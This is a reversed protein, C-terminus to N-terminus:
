LVAPAGGARTVRKASARPQSFSRLREPRVKRRRGSASLAPRSAARARARIDAWGDSMRRGDEVPVAREADAEAGLVVGFGEAGSRHAGVALRREVGRREEAREGALGAV